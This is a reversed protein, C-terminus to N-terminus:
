QVLMSRSDPPTDALWDIGRRGVMRSPFIAEGRLSSPVVGEHGCDINTSRCQYVASLLPKRICKENGYVVALSRSCGCVMLRFSRSMFWSKLEISGEGNMSFSRSSSASSNMTLQACSNEGLAGTLNRM